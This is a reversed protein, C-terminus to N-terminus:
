KDLVIKYGAKLKQFLAPDDIAEGDKWYIEKTFPNIQRDWLDGYARELAENQKSVARELEKVRSMLYSEQVTHQQANNHEQLCQRVLSAARRLSSYYGCESCWRILTSMPLYSAFSEIYDIISLINNDDERSNGNNRDHNTRIQRIVEDKYSGYLHSEDYSTKKPDKMSEYDMHVLYLCYDRWSSLGQVWREDIGMKTAFASVTQANPVRIISQCHTKDKVWKFSEVGEREERVEKFDRDHIAYAYPLGLYDCRKFVEDWGDNEPYTLTTFCVYRRNSSKGM